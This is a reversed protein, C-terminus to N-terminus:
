VPLRSGASRTWSVRISSGDSTWRGVIRVNPKQGERWSRFRVNNEDIRVRSAGGESKSYSVGGDPWLTVYQTFSMYYSPDLSAEEAVWVGALREIGRFIKENERVVDAM